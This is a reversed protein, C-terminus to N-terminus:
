VRIGDVPADSAAADPQEAAVARFDSLMTRWSELRNVFAEFAADLANVDLADLAKPCILAYVGTEPNQAFVTDPASFNAKLMTQAFAAAGDVPPQGIEGCILLRAAAEDHLLTVTMDDIQLTVAKGGGADCGAIAHREAFASVLETYDM